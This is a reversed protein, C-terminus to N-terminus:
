TKKSDTTYLKELCAEVRGKWIKYGESSLHLRDYSFFNEQACARGALTAGPLGATEGCFMTLCDVFHIRDSQPHSQLCRQFSRSMKSYKKKYSPYEELWPEFKPGLFVLKTIIATTNTTATIHAKPNKAHDDDRSTGFLLELFLKLSTLSTDLSIDNGIDNEGACAVVVITEPKNDRRSVAWEDLSEQLRYAVDLLSAGSYGKITVIPPPNNGTSKCADVNPLLDHPWFAIDSDGIFLLRDM